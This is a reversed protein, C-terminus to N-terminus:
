NNLQLGTVLLQCQDDGGEHAAGGAVGFVLVVNDNKANTLCDLQKLYGGDTRGDM